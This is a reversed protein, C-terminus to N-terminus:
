NSEAIVAGGRYIVIMFHCGRQQEEEEEGTGYERKGTVKMCINDNNDEFRWSAPCISVQAEMYPKMELEQFFFYPKRPIVYGAAINRSFASEHPLM